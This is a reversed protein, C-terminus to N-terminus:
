TVFARHLASASCVAFPLFTIPSAGPTPTPYQPAISCFVRKLIRAVEETLTPRAGSHDYSGM